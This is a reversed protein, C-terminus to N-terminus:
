VDLGREKILKAARRAGLSANGDGLREFLALTDADLAMTKRELDKAGDAPKPGTGKRAGGRKTPKTEDIM